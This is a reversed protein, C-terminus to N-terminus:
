FKQSLITMKGSSTLIENPLNQLSCTEGHVLGPNTVFILRAGSGSTCRAGVGNVMQCTLTSQGRINPNTEQLAVERSDMEPSDALNDAVEPSDAAVTVVIGAAEDEVEAVVVAAEPSLQWKRCRIRSQQSHKM